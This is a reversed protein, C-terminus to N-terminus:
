NVVYTTKDANSAFLVPLGLTALFRVFMSEGVTNGRISAPDGICAPGRISAPPRFEYIM